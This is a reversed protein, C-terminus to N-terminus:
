QFCARIQEDNKMGADKIQQNITRKAEKLEEKVSKLQNKLMIVKTKECREQIRSCKVLSEKLHDFNKAISKAIINSNSNPQGQNLSSIQEMLFRQFDSLQGFTTTLNDARSLDDYLQEDIKSFDKSKIRKLEENM